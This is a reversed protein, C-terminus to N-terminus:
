WMGNERAKGGGIIWTAWFRTYPLIMYGEERLIDAFIHSAQWNTMPTGDDFQGGVPKPGEDLYNGCIWDHVFWSKPCFDIAYTAGDSFYGAPVSVWKKYRPSYYSIRQPNRYRV